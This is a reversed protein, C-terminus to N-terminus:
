ASYVQTGALWTTGKLLSRSQGVRPARGSITWVALPERVTPSSAWGPWDSRTRPPVEDTPIAVVPSGNLSARGCGRLGVM